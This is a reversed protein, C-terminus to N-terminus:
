FGLKDYLTKSGKVSVNLSRDMTVPLKNIDNRYGITQQINPIIIRLCEKVVESNLEIVQEKIQCPLNKGYQLYISRMIIQLNMDSQRTIVYKTENFVQKIIENQILDVNERSFFSETLSTAVHIRKVSDNFCQQPQNSGVYSEYPAYNTGSYVVVRGNRYDNLNKQLDQNFDSFNLASM